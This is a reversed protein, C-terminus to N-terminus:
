LGLNASGSLSGSSYEVTSSYPIPGCAGKGDATSVLSLNTSLFSSLIGTSSTVTAKNDIYTKLAKQTAIKSDSTGLLINTDIEAGFTIAEGINNGIYLAYNPATVVAGMEGASLGTTSQFEGNIFTELYKAPKTTGTKIKIIPNPSPM